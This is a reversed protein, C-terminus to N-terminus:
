FSSPFMELKFNDCDISRVFEPIYLNPSLPSSQDRSFFGPWSKIRFIAESVMEVPCRPLPGLQRPVDPGSGGDLSRWSYLIVLFLKSEVTWLSSGHCFEYQPGKSIGKWGPGRAKALTANTLPRLHSPIRGIQLVVCRLTYPIRHHNGAPRKQSMYITFVEMFLSLPGM